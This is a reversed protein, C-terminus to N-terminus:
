INKITDRINNVVNKVKTWGVNDAIQTFKADNNVGLHAELLM